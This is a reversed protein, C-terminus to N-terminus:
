RLAEGAMDALGVALTEGEREHVATSATRACDGDVSESVDNRRMELAGLKDDQLSLDVLVGAINEADATGDM